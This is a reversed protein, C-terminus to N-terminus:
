LGLPAEPKRSIFRHRWPPRRPDIKPSCLSGIVRHRANDAVAQSVQEVIMIRDHTPVIGFADM